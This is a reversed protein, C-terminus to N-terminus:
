QTAEASVNTTFGQMNSYHITYTGVTKADIITTFGNQTKSFGYNSGDPGSIIAAISPYDSVNIISGDKYVTIDIKIKGPATVDMSNVPADPVPTPEPNNFTSETQTEIGYDSSDVYKQSNANPRNWQDIKEIPENNKSYRFLGTGNIMYYGSNYEEPIKIEVIKDDAFTYDHLVEAEFSGFIRVNAKAEIEKKITGDYAVITYDGNAQLSKIVGYENVGSHPDDLNINVVRLDYTNNDTGGTISDIIMEENESQIIIDTDGNPYTCNDKVNTSITFRRTDETPKLGRIGVSYGLDKFRELVFDEKLQKTTYFILSDNPKLTPIQDFDNKFWMVRKESPHETIDNKNFSADGFYIPECSYNGSADQKRIYYCGDELQNIYSKSAKSYSKQNGEADTATIITEEESDCGAFVSLAAVIVLLIAVQKTYRKM